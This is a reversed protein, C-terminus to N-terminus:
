FTPTDVRKLAISISFRYAAIASVQSSIKRQLIKRPLKALLSSSIPNLVGTLAISLLFRYAAIASVQSSIKRQLIKRPESDISEACLFAGDGFRRHKKIPHSIPNSGVAKLAM